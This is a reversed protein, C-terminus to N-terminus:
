KFVESVALYLSVLFAILTLLDRLITIGRSDRFNLYWDKSKEREGLSTFPYNRSQLYEKHTSAMTTVDFFADENILGQVRWRELIINEELNFGGDRKSPSNYFALVKTALAKEEKNMSKEEQEVVYGDSGGLPLRERLM